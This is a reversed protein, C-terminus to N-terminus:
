EGEKVLPNYWYHPPDKTLLSDIAREVVTDFTMNNGNRCIGGNRPSRKVLAKFEDWPNCKKLKDNSKSDNMSPLSPYLSTRKQVGASSNLQPKLPFSNVPMTRHNGSSYSPPPPNSAGRFFPLSPQYSPITQSPYGQASFGISGRNNLSQQYMQPHPRNNMVSYMSSQQPLNYCLGSAPNFYVPAFQQQQQQNMYSAPNIAPASLCGGANTQGYSSNLYSPTNPVCTPPYAPLPPYSVGGTQSATGVNVQESQCNASSQHFNNSPNFSMFSSNNYTGTLEPYLNGSSVSPNCNSAAPNLGSETHTSSFLDTSNNQPYHDTQLSRFNLASNSMSQSAHLTPLSQAPKQQLNTIATSNVSSSSIGSDTLLSLDPLSSLDSSSSVSWQNCSPSTVSDVISSSPSVDFNSMVPDMPSPIPSNVRWGTSFSPSNKNTSTSSKNMDEVSANNSPSSSNSTSTNQSTETSHSDLRVLDGLLFVASSGNEFKVVVSRNDPQSTVYGEAGASNGRIIRVTDSPIPPLLRLMRSNALNICIKTSITTDTQVSIYIQGRPQDIDVVVGMKGSYFQMDHPLSNPTLEVKANLLNSLVIGDLPSSSDLVTTELPSQFGVEVNLRSPSPSILVCKM